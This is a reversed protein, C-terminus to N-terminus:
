LMTEVQDDLTHGIAIRDAGIEDALAPAVSRRADRASEMLNGETKAVPCDLVTLPVNLRRCHQRALREDSDSEDGRLHHNIHLARLVKPRAEGLLGLGLIELLALSDQGGSVMVLVQSLAPFLKERSALERVKPVISVLDNAM